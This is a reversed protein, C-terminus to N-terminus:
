ITTENKKNNSENKFFYISFTLKRHITWQNMEM